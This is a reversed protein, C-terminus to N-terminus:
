EVVFSREATGDRGVRFRAPKGCRPCRGDYRTGDLSRYVRQYANCCAFHVSLFPRLSRHPTSPSTGGDASSLEVNYDRPDSV